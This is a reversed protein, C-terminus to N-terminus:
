PELHMGGTIRYWLGGIWWFVWPARLASNWDDFYASKRRIIFLSPLQMVSVMITVAISIGITTSGLIVLGLPLEAMVTM